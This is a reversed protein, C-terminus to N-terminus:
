GHGGPYRRESFFLATMSAARFVSHTLAPDQGKQLRHETRRIEAERGAAAGFSPNGHEISRTYGATDIDVITFTSYSIKRVSCVPLTDMVTEASRMVDMCSSATYRVAITAQLTALVNAKVGSGLGDSLVSILRDEERIKQSVFTEAPTNSASSM